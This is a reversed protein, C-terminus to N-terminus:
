NVEVAEAVKNRVLQAMMEADMVLTTGVFAQGRMHVIGRRIPTILELKFILTDGPIVKQKFRVNDIKLFYTSWESPVEVNNLALIGGAQAMAEIQLVGPMVPEGPFHGVFFGENMTVSKVGVVSNEDLHTIKDILLFPPRHPLLDMIGKIDKVPADDPSYRPAVGNKQEFKVIQRVQKAFETNAYHGPRKAIIKGKIRRGALALDGIVDLLKHRAPENSFQLDINNLIGRKAKLHPKNFLDAIRDFEEQPYENEVIVIANELAGGKILNNKFLPELESFFVFTRCPAIQTGFESVDSMSAFQHGLVKSNFDILVDISYKDDPYAIIEIGLEKNVYRVNEHVVFYEREADQEQIGAENLIQFFYKSSGDMIPVEPGDIEILLNDIELCYAAALAHEITSIRVDGKAITTGRATDVVNEALAPIITQKELDVRKFKYGHDVNAPKFTMTVEVGTHLGVGKISVENKITKQMDTM